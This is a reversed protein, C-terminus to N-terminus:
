VARLRHTCFKGEKAHKRKTVLPFSREWALRKASRAKIREAGERTRAGRLKHPGWPRRVCARPRVGAPLGGSPELTVGPFRGARWTKNGGNAPTAAQRSHVARRPSGEPCARTGVQPNPVERPTRVRGHLTTRQLAGLPPCGARPGPAARGHDAHCPEQASSAPPYPFHRGTAGDGVRCRGRGVGGVRGCAWVKM